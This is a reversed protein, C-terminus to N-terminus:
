QIYGIARLSEESVSMEAESLKEKARWLSGALEEFDRSAAKVRSSDPEEPRILNDLEAADTKLDFFGRWEKDGNYFGTKLYVGDGQRYRFVRRKHRSHSAILPRSLFPAEGRLWPLMSLGQIPFDDGRVVPEVGIAELTTPLVDLLSVPHEVFGRAKEGALVGRPFQFMLPVNVSEKHVTHGHGYHGHELFEEGHDSTFMVLGSDGYREYWADLLRKIERSMFSVEGEYRHILNREQGPTPRETTDDKHLRIRWDYYNVAESDEPLPSV